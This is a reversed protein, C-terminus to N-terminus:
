RTPPMRNYLPIMSLLACLVMSLRFTLTHYRRLLAVKVKVEDEWSIMAILITFLNM